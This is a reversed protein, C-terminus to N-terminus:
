LVFTSGDDLFRKFEEVTEYQVRGGLKRTIQNAGAIMGGADGAQYALEISSLATDFCERYEQFYSDLYAELEQRFRRAQEAARNCEETIRLREQHELQRTRLMNMLNNYYNSTLLSGVLAGVAGGVIPIPLLAQGVAMSYGMTAMNLGKNGLQLLCEETTIEGDGWKKLTDGTVMVATIVKGPVNSKVLGQIFGSSSRHSLMQSAGTLGGGMAYGTVAAKGGDKITDVVADEGSKEGKIVSVLNMIGSMTLATVGANQAGAKGAEHMTEAANKAGQKLLRRDNRKEAAKGTERIRSQVSEISEGSEIHERLRDMRMEDNAWEGQTSGGKGAPGTQNSTRSIAQFNDESNAIEKLNDTTIFPNKKTRKAIQSLPDIHDAEVAHSQWREGYQLKAEKQSKVLEAGTYPDRVTGGSSFAKDIAAKHAKPDDYYAKRTGPNYGPRAYKINAEAISDRVSADLAIGAGIKVGAEEDEETNGGGVETSVVKKRKLFEFM